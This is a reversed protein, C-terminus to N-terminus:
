SLVTDQGDYTQFDECEQLFSPFLAKIFTPQSMFWELLKIRISEEIKIQGNKIGDFFINVLDQLAEQFELDQVDDCLVFFLECMSKEDTSKRRIWELLIFRTLALATSSVMLDYSLGQFEHGMKLLSKCAKFTCEISWRRGYLRVIEEATLSCDTSVLVIYEDKKARNRVFVLKLPMDYNKAQVVISGYINAGFNHVKLNALWPLTHREGNYIFFQKQKDKIMGIYHLGTENLVRNMFPEYSFWSDALLYSAPIGAKLASLILEISADTNHMMARLRTKYGITRKDITDSIGNIRSKVSIGCKMLFSVPISSYGDTWNVMLLKFGKPFTNTNHDHVRSLLEVKKSRNREMTSDDLVLCNIREPRTFGTFTIAVKAGLLNIFKGWNYRPNNLFRYYTNKSCAIDGKKGRLFQFLNRGQFALNLLFIFVGFASFSERGPVSDASSKRINSKTLLRALGLEKVAGSFAKEASFFSSANQNNQAIM